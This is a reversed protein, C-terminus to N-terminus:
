RLAQVAATAIEDLEERSEDWGPGRPERTLLVVLFRDDEGLAGSSHLYTQGSFCCM